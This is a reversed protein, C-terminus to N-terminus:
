KIWKQWEGYRESIKGKPLSLLIILVGVILCNAVCCKMCFHAVLWPAIVLIIGFLINLYRISRFVEAFAIVSITVIIPGLIFYIEALTGVTGLIAPTMMLWIGLGMSVILNWPFSFGQTGATRVRAVPRTAAYAKPTKCGKWFIKWTSDGRRKAERLLQIVAAFEGATFVIMLLMLAATALCWSCWAGVAVPQLIILTISVVGVPIVLIGFIFVLWPMNAWRRTNGQWGLLADLKYSLAGLAADSVPFSQSVKSTIVQYTGEGFFPDWIHDIYGLQFAAMYRSFFWCIMALFVTPIRYPWASPNYSWGLPIDSHKSAEIRTPIHFSFIIVLAGILTDNVYMLSTPAWFIIPAVQLWFGVVGILVVPLLHNTKWCIIGLVVLLLGSLIDSWQIAHGGYGFTAPLAILWFGLAITLLILSKKNEKM